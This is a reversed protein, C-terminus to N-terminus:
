PGGRTQWGPTCRWNVPFDVAGPISNRVIVEYVVWAGSSYGNPHSAHRVLFALQKRDRAVVLALQADRHNPGITLDVGTGMSTFYGGCIAQPYARAVTKFSSGVGIGKTTKQGRLTTEVQAVRYTAGRQIFGVSTSGFNWGLEVYTTGDVRTRSNVVSGSGLVREVQGRTMDVRIKGIGVGRIITSEVAAAGPVVALAAVVAIGYRATTGFM